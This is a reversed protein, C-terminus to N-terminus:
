KRRRCHPDLDSAKTVSIQRDKAIASVAALNITLLIEHAVLEHMVVEHAVLCEM